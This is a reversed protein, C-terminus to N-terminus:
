NETTFSQRTLVVTKPENKQPDLLELQVTTGAAGRILAVCEALSKGATSVGDIKQVILGSTLGAQAAPTNPLVGDILPMRSAQDSGLRVGIGVLPTNPLVPQSQQAAQDISVGATQEVNNQVNQGIKNLSGIIKQAGAIDGHQLATKVATLQALPAAVINELPTGKVKANLVDIQPQLEQLKQLATDPDNTQMLSAYIEGYLAKMPQMMAMADKMNPDLNAPITSAAPAPNSSPITSASAASSVKGAIVPTAPAPAMVPMVVQAKASSAPNPGAAQDATKAPASGTAHIAYNYSAVALIVVAAALITKTTTTMILFPKLLFYILGSGGTTSALASVTVADVLGAPAAQTSNAGIAEALLGSSVIIGRRTFYIRLKELAREVRKRAADENLGITHGIERHSQGEFYRLVLVDREKGGLSNVAEDLVPQLKDWHIELETFNNQMAVLEQERVRRRNERRIAKCVINRTTIHLWGALTAHGCLFRARQALTAFVQQSADEALHTDGAALRRATSYVLNVHRRVVEAFAQEDGNEVYRCLLERDNVPDM